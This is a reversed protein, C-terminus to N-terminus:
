VTTTTPAAITNFTPQYTSVAAPQLGFEVTNFAALDSPKPASTVVMDAFVGRSGSVAIGGDMDAVAIPTGNRYATWLIAQAADDPDYTVSLTYSLTRKGVGHTVFEGRRNTIDAVARSDEMGIAETLDVESWTIPTGAQHLTASVYFKGRLGHKYAM